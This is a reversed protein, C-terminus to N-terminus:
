SWEHWILYQVLILKDTLILWLKSQLHIIAHCQVTTHHSLLSLYMNKVYQDTASQPQCLSYISFFVTGIWGDHQGQTAHFGLLPENVFRLTLSPCLYILYRLSPFKICSLIEYKLNVNPNLKQITRYVCTYYPITCVYCFFKWQFKIKTLMDIESFLIWVFFVARRYGTQWYNISRIIFRTYIKVKNPYPWLKWPVM